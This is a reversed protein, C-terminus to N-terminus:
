YRCYSRQDNGRPGKVGADNGADSRRGLYRDTPARQEDDRGIRTDSIIQDLLSEQEQTVTAQETRSQQTADSM